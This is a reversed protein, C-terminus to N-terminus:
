GKSAVLAVATVRAAGRRDALFGGGLGGLLMALRCPLAFLWAITTQAAGRDILFPGRLGGVVEFATAGFLAFGLGLWASRRGLMARMSAGLASFAGVRPVEQLEEAPRRALLVALSCWIVLVLLAIVAGLGFRNAVLLMPGGFAARGLLMGAQLVGNLRGHQARPVSALAYGDIAADQTAACFAHAFLLAGFTGAREVPDLFLLPILCGGMGLQAAVIFSRRGFRAGGLADILPAWLFKLAWPLVLAASLSTVSGVPMGHARLWTPLATWIFGIPAGESVYLLGFVALERFPLPAERPPASDAM